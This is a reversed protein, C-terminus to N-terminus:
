LYQEAAHRIGARQRLALRQENRLIGAPGARARHEHAGPAHRGVPVVVRALRQLRAGHADDGLTRQAQGALHLHGGAALCVRLQALIKEATGGFLQPQHGDRAGVSFGGDGREDLLRQLLRAAFRPENAGDVGLDVGHVHGCFIGRGLRPVQVRQEAAHHQRAARERYHFGAALRQVLQPQPAKGKLHAHERVQRLIMQIIVLGKFVIEGCLFAQEALHLVHHHVQVVAVAAAQQVLHPPRLADGKGRAVVRRIVGGAVDPERGRAHLELHHAAAEDLADIEGHGPIVRHVVRQRRRGRGNRQADGRPVGGGRKRGGAPHAAPALHQIM